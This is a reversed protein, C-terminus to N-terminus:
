SNDTAPEAESPGGFLADFKQSAMSKSGTSEQHKQPKAGYNDYNRPRNSGMM